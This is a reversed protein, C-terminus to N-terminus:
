RKAVWPVLPAFLPARSSTVDDLLPKFAPMASSTPANAGYVALKEIMQRQDEYNQSGADYIARTTGIMDSTLAWGGLQVQMSHTGNGTGGPKAFFGPGRGLAGPISFALPLVPFQTMYGIASKLNGDSEVTGGTLTSKQGSYLMGKGKEYFLNPNNGTKSGSNFDSIADRYFNRTGGTPYVKESDFTWTLQASDSDFPPVGASFNHPKFLLNPMDNDTYQTIMPYVAIHRYYDAPFTQGSANVSITDAQWTVGRHYDDTNLDYQCYADLSVTVAVDTPKTDVGGIKVTMVDDVWLPFKNDVTFIAKNTSLTFLESPVSDIVVPDWGRANSRECCPLLVVYEREYSVAGIATTAADLFRSSNGWPDAANSDWKGFVGVGQSGSGKWSLGDDNTQIPAYRTTGEQEEIFLEQCMPNVVRSDIDVYMFPTSVPYLYKPAAPVSTKLNFICLLQELAIALNSAAGPVNKWAIKFRFAFHHINMRMGNTRADSVIDQLGQNLDFSISGSKVLASSGVNQYRNRWRVQPLTPNRIIAM